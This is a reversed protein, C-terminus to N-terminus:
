TNLSLMYGSRGYTTWVGYTADNDTSKQPNSSVISFISMYEPCGKLLDCYVILAKYSSNMYLQTTLFVLSFLSIFSM